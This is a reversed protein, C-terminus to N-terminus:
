MNKYKAFYKSKEYPIGKVTHSYKRLYNEKGGKSNYLSFLFLQSPLEAIPIKLLFKKKM